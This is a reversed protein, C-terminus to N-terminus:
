FQFIHRNETPIKIKLPRSCNKSSKGNSYGTLFVYGFLLFIFIEVFCLFPCFNRFKIEIKFDFYTTFDFYIAYRPIKGRTKPFKFVPKSSFLNDLIAILIAKLHKYDGPAILKNEIKNRFKKTFRFLGIAKSASPSSM